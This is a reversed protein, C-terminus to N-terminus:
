PKRTRQTAKLHQLAQEYPVEGREMAALITMPDPGSRAEPAEPAPEPASAELRL